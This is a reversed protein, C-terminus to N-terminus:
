KFEGKVSRTTVEMEPYATGFVMKQFGGNEQQEVKKHRPFPVDLGLLVRAILFDLLAAEYHKGLVMVHKSAKAWKVIASGDARRKLRIQYVGQGTKARHCFLTNKRYYVDWRDQGNEAKLGAELTRLERPDFEDSYPIKTLKNFKGKAM